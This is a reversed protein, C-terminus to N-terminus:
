QPRGTTTPDGGSAKSGGGAAHPSIDDFHGAASEYAAGALGPSAASESDEFSTEFVGDPKPMTLRDLRQEMRRLQDLLEEYSTSSPVITGTPEIAPQDSPSREQAHSGAPWGILTCGAVVLLLFLARNGLASTAPIRSRREINKM